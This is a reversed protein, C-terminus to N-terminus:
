HISDKTEYYDAGRVNEHVSMVGRSPQAAAPQQDLGKKLISEIYKRNPGGPMGVGLARECGANMRTAGYREATRLLGLCARYGQEPNAYRGLTLEVVRAVAPGFKAGWSVLREPPWVQDRHNLPRHSPDTVSTGPPGYSRRHTAIRTHDHFIEILTATARVEVRQRVRQFQVSYFRKDYEIHYDINVGVDSRRDAFEYRVPPLARLAPKDLTEFATDRCGELKQFPKANLDDLLEWIAQNLEDITFFTRRRLRALIWRQVILVAGEVKAKDKPKRPRAPMVAVGYHQAMELYTANIDPEYRDPGRVASRLQDPVIMEPVGGFHEFGRITSGVFDRLGQTRTAEAYTYNSAGLVMVFLEVERMEGTTADTVRPKKGSYDIFAKEGARHVRRMSPKLRVRWAGYLECFHSYHYPKGDGRAAAAEQYEAWLLELTATSKHLEHHVHAYDIPARRVGQNRGGDRFLAAEVESDSMSRAQEWSLGAARARQLHGCVTGIAISLSSAIERQSRGCEDALRLVERIKRMSLRESM